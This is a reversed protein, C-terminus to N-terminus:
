LPTISTTLNSASLRGDFPFLLNRAGLHLPGDLHVNAVLQTGPGISVSGRLRCWPGIRVDPALQVDGELIATAHIEAM